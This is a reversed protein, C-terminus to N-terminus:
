IRLLNGDSDYVTIAEFMGNAPIESLSHAYWGGTSPGGVLPSVAQFVSSSVLNSVTYGGDFATTANDFIAVTDGVALFHGNTVTVTMTGAAGTMSAVPLRTAYTRATGGRGYTFQPNQYVFMTDAIRGALSVTPFGLESRASSSVYLPRANKFAPSQPFVVNTPPAQTLFGSALNGTLVSVAPHAEASWNNGAMDALTAGFGVRYVEGSLIRMIDDVTAISGNTTLNTLNPLPPPGFLNATNNIVGVIDAETMEARNLIRAYLTLAIHYAQRAFMMQDGVCCIHDLLYGALGDEDQGMVTKAGTFGLNPEQTLQPFNNVNVYGSQGSGEMGPNVLSSNPILSGLPIAGAPLDNRVLVPYIRRM